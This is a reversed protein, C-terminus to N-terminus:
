ERPATPRGDEVIVDIVLTAALLDIGSSICCHM